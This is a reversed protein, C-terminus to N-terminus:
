KPGNPSPYPIPIENRNYFVCVQDVLHDFVTSDPQRRIKRLSNTDSQIRKVEAPDFIGSRVLTNRVFTTMRRHAKRNASTVSGKTNHPSEDRLHEVVRLLEGQVTTAPGAAPVLENWIKGAVEPYRLNTPFVPQVTFTPRVAPRTEQWRAVLERVDPAAHELWKRACMGYRTEQDLDAGM